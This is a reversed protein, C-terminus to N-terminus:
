EDDNAFDSSPANAEAEAEAALFSDTQLVSGDEPSRKVPSGADGLSFDDEEADASPKGDEEEVSVCAIQELFEIVPFCGRERAIDIPRHEVGDLAMLDFGGLEHLTQLVFPDAHKAALHVASQGEVDTKTIDIGKHAVLEKIFDRAGIRVALLLPTLGAFDGINVDINRHGLLERVLASSWSPIAIHLPTENRNNTANVECRENAILQAVIAVNGRRVALHLPTNGNRDAANVDANRSLLFGISERQGWTAAIHLPTRSHDDTAEIQSADITLFIEILEVFGIQAAFHVPTWERADVRFVDMGPRAILAEVLDLDCNLVCLSVLSLGEPPLVDAHAGHDLLHLVMRDRKLQCALYTPTRGRHDLADIEITPQRLLVDVVETHGSRAALHLPSHGNTDRVNVDVKQALFAVTRPHAFEAAYHLATKGFKDVAGFIYFGLRDFREIIRLHGNIAAHLVVTRKARDRANLDAETLMDIVLDIVDDRGNAAAFHLVNWGNHDVLDLGIRMEFLMKVISRDALPLFSPVHETELGHSRVLYEVIHRHGRRLAYHLPIWQVADREVLSDGAEHLLQIIELSGYAAAFHAATWGATNKQQLAAVQACILQVIAKRGYHAAYHLATNGSVDATQFIQPSNLLSTFISLAGGAAAFHVTHRGCQDRYDTRGSRLYFNFCKTSGFYAAVQIPSPTNSLIPPTDDPLLAEFPKEYRTSLVYALDDRRISELLERDRIHM